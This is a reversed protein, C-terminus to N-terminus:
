KFLQHCLCFFLVCVFRFIYIPLLGFTCRAFSELKKLHIISACCLPSVDSEKEEGQRKNRNTQQHTPTYKAMFKHRSLSFSSVIQALSDKVALLWVFGPIVFFKFMFLYCMFTIQTNSRLNRKHSQRKKGEEEKSYLYQFSCHTLAKRAFFHIEKM